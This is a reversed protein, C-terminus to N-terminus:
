GFERNRVPENNSSSLSALMRRLTGADQYRSLARQEHIRASRLQNLDRARVAMRKALSASEEVTRLAAWLAKEYTQEQEHSLYKSTFAHGVRCRYRQFGGDDIKWLVGGCDPCGYVSPEGLSSEDEIQRMDFEAFRTEKQLAAQSDALVPRAGAVEESTLQSLLSPIESPSALLADPVYALASRPMDPYLATAPDQVVAAGGASRVAMLGSTGDDLVGSLVVGIVRPGFVAAASRFLPDIAPRHLNERPGKVVRITGPELILHFDPPAVYIRGNEIPAGDEPHVARLRGGRSIVEPLRSPSHNSTHLVAFLSAPLDPPIDCNLQRLADLGGASAGIVIIDRKPM